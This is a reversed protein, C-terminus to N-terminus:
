MHQKFKITKVIDSFIEKGLCYTTGLLLSSQWWNKKGWALYIAAVTYLQHPGIPSMAQSM